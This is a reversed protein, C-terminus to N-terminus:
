RAEDLRVRRLWFSGATRTTGPAREYALVLPVVTGGAPTRFEFAAESWADSAPALWEAGITRWRLGTDAAM